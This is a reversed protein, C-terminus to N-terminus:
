KNEQSPFRAIPASDAGSTYLYRIIRYVTEAAALGIVIYAGTQVYGARVAKDYMEQQEAPGKTAAGYNYANIYNGAMGIAVMSLPLAVWLRGYAGYFKKRATNVRKEEPSVPVRTEYNLNEGGDRGPGTFEASGRIVADSRYVASGTEGSPTEVSIYAFQDRPLELTLPATGMYLGGLYVSSGPSQPVDVTFSSLSLPALNIYLEAIEGAILEMPVVVSNYNDAHITVEVEGPSRDKRPVEGSGAYSGNIVVMADEPGAHVAIAAPLTESVALALRTSLEDVAINIDEPSFIISDEYSFSRTHITYMELNLLIRGHYESVIGTIFADVNQSKCFRYEAGAKPAAPWVGKKNDETFQFKPVSAIEPIESELEKLNEELKVIEAEKTKLDKRYKWGATGQYLLLDRENRKTALAKAAASVSKTWAYDQYYEAEDGSRYRIEVAKLADTLDRILIDGMIKRSAPLASADFATVCLTWNPNLPDPKAEPEGRSFLPSLLFLALVGALFFRKYM